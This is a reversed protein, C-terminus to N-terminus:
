FHKSQHRLGLKGTVSHSWFKQDPLSLVSFPKGRTTFQFLNSSDEGYLNVSRVSAIYATEPQLNQIAFALVSGKRPDVYETNLSMENNSGIKRIYIHFTQQSGGNEGVIFSILVQESAVAKVTVEAVPKPPGQLFYYLYM